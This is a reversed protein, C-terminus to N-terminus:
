RITEGDAFALGDPHWEVEFDEIGQNVLSQWERPSFDQPCSAWYKVTWSASQRPAILTPISLHDDILGGGQRDRLQFHVSFSQVARDSLNRYRFHIRVIDEFMSVADTQKEVSVLAIVDRARAAHFDREQARFHEWVAAAGVLFVLVALRGARTWGSSRGRATVLLMIVAILALAGVMVIFDRGMANGGIFM